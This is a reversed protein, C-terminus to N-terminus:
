FFKTLDEKLIMLINDKLPDRIANFNQKDVQSLVIDLAKDFNPIEDPHRSILYKIIFPLSRQYGSNCFILTNKRIKQLEEIKDYSKEFLHIMDNTIIPNHDTYEIITFSMEKKPKIEQFIEKAKDSPLICIIHEINNEIIETDLDKVQTKDTLLVNWIIHVLKSNSPPPVNEYISNNIQKNEDIQSYETNENPKVINYMNEMHTLKNHQDLEYHKLCIPRTRLHKNLNGFNSFKSNCSTCKFNSGTNDTKFKGENNYTLQLDNAVSNGTELIEIWKKCLPSREFHQLLGIENVYSKLCGNCQSSIM